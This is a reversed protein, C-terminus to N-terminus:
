LDVRKASHYNQKGAHRSARKNKPRVGRGYWKISNIYSLSNRNSNQSLPKAFGYQKERESENPMRLKSESRKTLNLTM